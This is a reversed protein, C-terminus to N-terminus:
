DGSRNDYRGGKGFLHHWNAMWQVGLWAIFTLIGFIGAVMLTAVLAGGLVNV